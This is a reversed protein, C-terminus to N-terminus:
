KNFYFDIKDNLPSQYISFYSKKFDKWQKIDEESYECIDISYGIYELIENKLPHDVTNLYNYTQRVGTSVLHEGDFGISSDFDINKAEIFAWIIEPNEFRTLLFASFYLNDVDGEQENEDKRWLLEQQFLFTAIYYDNQQFDNYMAINLRLRDFHKSYGVGKEFRYNELLNSNQRVANLETQFKNEITM